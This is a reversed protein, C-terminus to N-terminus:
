WPPVVGVDSAYVDRAVTLEALLDPMADALNKTEGPDNATNFLQWEGPGFGWSEIPVLVAKYDLQNLGRVLTM